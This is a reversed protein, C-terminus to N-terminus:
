DVKWEAAVLADLDREYEADDFPASGPQMLQHVHTAVISGIAHIASHRPVNAACLRALTKVAPRYREALQNEVVVHIAAHVRANPLEVKNQEHYDLVRVLRETESLALWGGPDVDEEPDYRDVRTGRDAM